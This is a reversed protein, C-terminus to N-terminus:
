LSGQYAKVWANLAREFTNCHGTNSPMVQDDHYVHWKGDFGVAGLYKPGSWIRIYQAGSPETSLIWQLDFNGLTEVCLDLCTRTEGSMRADEVASMQRALWDLMAERDSSMSARVKGEVSGVWHQKSDYSTFCELTIRDPKGM